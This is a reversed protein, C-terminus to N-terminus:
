DVLQLNIRNFCLYGKALNCKIEPQPYTPLGLLDQLPRGAALVFQCVELHYCILFLALPRPKHVGLQYPDDIAATKNVNLLMSQKHAKPKKVKKVTNCISKTNM